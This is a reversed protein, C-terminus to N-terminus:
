GRMDKLVADVAKIVGDIDEKSVWGLHGIRFIKGQLKQQGGGLVVGHEKRVRSVLEVGDVDDPVKVATVTNSAVSEDPFLELGLKKMGQRAQEAREHHRGFVNEMGEDLLLQMSKDLGYLASVAPTFPPQGRQLYREYLDADFYYRAMKASERAKWARESMTIMGIGPPAGWAKQSATSMTDIDWADVALPIGAASSVADLLLLADSEEHVVKSIEEIRNTIGTSSENHTIMVAKYNPEDRLARRIDDPDAPEGWEYEMRTVEGGFAEAIDGFRNGFSGITVMLSKDGPSMTNVVAAEMAGTGSATILYSRNQTSMVTKFNETMRNILDAFEPGRHNIMQESSAEIIEDTLPVPGPVRLNM